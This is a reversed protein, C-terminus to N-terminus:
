ARHLFLPLFWIFGAYASVAAESAAAAFFAFRPFPYPSLFAPVFFMLTLFPAVLIRLVSLASWTALPSYGAERGAAYLVVAAIGTAAVGLALGSLVQWFRAYPRLFIFAAGTPVLAIVSFVAVFLFADGFAYMGSSAQAEPGNTAAVRIAVAVSAILIAAIYGAAVMGVKHVTKM